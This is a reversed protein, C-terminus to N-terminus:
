SFVAIGVDPFVKGIKEIVKGKGSQDVVLNEAEVSTKRWANIGKVVNSSEIADLLNRM